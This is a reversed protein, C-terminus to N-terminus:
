LKPYFNHQKMINAYHGIYSDQDKTMKDFSHSGVWQNICTIISVIRIIEEAVEIEFGKKVFEQLIDKSLDEKIVKLAFNFLPTFEKDNSSFIDLVNGYGLEKCIAIHTLFCYKSHNHKSVYAALIERYAIPLTGEGRMIEHALMFVPPEIVKIEKNKYVTFKPKM